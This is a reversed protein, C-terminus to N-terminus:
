TNASVWRSTAEDLLLMKNDPHLLARAICFLQKQGHSLLEPKMEAEVGGLAEIVTWLQVDQLARVMEDISVSENPDLNLRIPGPLFFSDQPISNIRARVANWITALSCVIIWINIPYTGTRLM